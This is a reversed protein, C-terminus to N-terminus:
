AFATQFLKQYNAIPNLDPDALHNSLHSITECSPTSELTESLKFNDSIFTRIKHMTLKFRKWFRYFTSISLVCEPNLANYAKEISMGSLIFLLFQWAISSSILTENIFNIIFYSITRGCGKRNNRNSCFIRRGKVLRYNRYEDFGYIYDHLILMGIIGCHRCQKLKISQVITELETRDIFYGHPM